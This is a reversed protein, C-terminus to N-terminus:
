KNLESVSKIFHVIDQYILEHNTEHLLEHRAGEYLRVEVDQIGNKKFQNAVQWVSKGGNGVPDQDGSILLIKLSSNVKKVEEDKHITKLGELLDIFFGVTSINGSLPDEIYEKVKEEDRSLWDFKTKTPKFKNNFGGFSLDDLLPSVKKKSYIRAEMKAIGRGLLGLIGPDGGTGSLVCASLVTDNVQIYRRAIFSGMSHGFLIIPNAPYLQKIKEQVEGVDRVVREFGDSDSFYGLQGNKEATKGHGRHDHGVVCYGETVLFKAFSDYRNIHEAMGHLIHIVGKPNKCDWITMYISHGDSMKVYSQTSM